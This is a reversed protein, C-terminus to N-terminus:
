NGDQFLEFQRDNHITRAKNLARKAEDINQNIYWDGLIEMEGKEQLIAREISIKAYDLRDILDQRM